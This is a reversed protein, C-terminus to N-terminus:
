FIPLDRNPSPEWSQGGDKTKKLFIFPLGANV